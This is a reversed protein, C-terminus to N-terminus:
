EVQETEPDVNFLVMCAVCLWRWPGIPSWFRVRRNSECRLCPPDPLLVSVHDFEAEFDDLLTEWEVQAAM